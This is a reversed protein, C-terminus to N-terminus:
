GASAFSVPKVSTSLSEDPVPLLIDFTTGREDSDCSILGNLKDVLGQVINLGLGRNGGKKSSRVPSFLNALVESPIGTGTDSICLELYPRGERIIRGNNKVEINGGKPLAEVANKILNM